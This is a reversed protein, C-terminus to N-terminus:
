LIASDVWLYFDLSRWLIKSFFISSFLCFIFLLSLHFSLFSIWFKSCIPSRRPKLVNFFTQYETKQLYINKPNSSLTQEHLILQTKAFCMFHFYKKFIMLLYFKFFYTHLIQMCIGYKINKNTFLRNSKSLSADMGIIADRDLLLRNNVLFFYWIHFKYSFVAYNNKWIKDKLSKYFINECWTSQLCRLQFSMFLCQAGVL